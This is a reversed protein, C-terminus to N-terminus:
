ILSWCNTARASTNEPGVGDCRKKTVRAHKLKLKSASLSPMANKSTLSSVVVTSRSNHRVYVLNTALKLTSVFVDTVPAYQNVFICCSLQDPLQWGQMRSQLLVRRKQQRRPSLKGVPHRERAERNIFDSVTHECRSQPLVRM